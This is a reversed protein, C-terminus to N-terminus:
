IWILGFRRFCGVVLYIYIYDEYDFRKTFNHNFSFMSYRLDVKSGCDMM